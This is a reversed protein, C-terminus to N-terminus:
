TRAGFIATGVRVMTAGEEIASEFDHSMGMSLETFRAEPACEAALTERLRRMESFCRRLATEDSSPDPITMLGRPKLWSYAAMEVVLRRLADPETVGSKSTEQSWNVQLLVDLATQLAAARRELAQALRPSDVTQICAFAGVVNRAKNTQLHGILHWRAEPPLEAIKGLAEQVYNEGFLRQGADFAERVRAAPQTKSVAILTVAGADRGSRRAAAAIRERVAALNEAIPASMGGPAPSLPPVPGGARQIPPSGSARIM